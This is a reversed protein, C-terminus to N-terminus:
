GEVDAYWRTLGCEPCVFVTAELRERTGLSGLLGDRRERTRLVVGMADGAQVPDTPEMAVGCDPCRRETESTLGSTTRGHRSKSPIARWQGLASLFEATGFRAFSQKADGFEETSSRAVNLSSLVAIAWPARYSSVSLSVAM